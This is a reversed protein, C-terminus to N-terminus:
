CTQEALDGEVYGVPLLGQGLQLGLYVLPNQEVEQPGVHVPEQGADALPGEVEVLVLLLDDECM